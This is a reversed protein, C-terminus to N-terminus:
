PTHFTSSFNHKPISRTSYLDTKGESGIWGGFINRGEIKGEDKTNGNMKEDNFRSDSETQRRDLRLCSQSIVTHVAGVFNKEASNRRTSEVV